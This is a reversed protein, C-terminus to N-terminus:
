CKVGEMFPLTIVVKTGVYLISEISIGYNYGYYIKIRQNVNKMGISKGTNEKDNLSKNLKILKDEDIGIGDDEVCIKLMDNEIYINVLIIGKDKKEELGHVFANEVIPQLLLPLIMYERANIAEAINIEFRVMGDFRMSQIELYNKIIEVESELTVSKGSVELNRRMIKGLKKVIDSIEKDGKLLAKMRITELTNYLFHPNIQNSLMKFEAERQSSKLKEENIKQVYVQNILNRISEVMKKLDKHLQGIEDKGYIKDSIYLDGGVIRRMENSLLSVRESINKSFYFIIVFSFIITLIAVLVSNIIAKNTQGIIESAPIITIAQFNDTLSKEIKFSNVIIFYQKNNLIPKIIYIECKDSKKIIESSDDKLMKESLNVNGDYLIISDNLSVANRSDVNNIARMTINNINIVLVGIKEGKNNKILRVLSLCKKEPVIKNGYYWRIKGDGELANEYWESNKIEDNVISISKSPLLTDNESYIIIDSLESYYKLYIDLINYNSYANFVELSNKYQNTVMSHLEPDTYIMDSVRTAVNFIEKMRYEMIDVDKQAENMAKNVIITNMRNTLYICVISVTAIAVILYTIILKNRIKINDLCLLWVNKM